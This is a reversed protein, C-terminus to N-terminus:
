LFVSRGIAFRALVEYRSGEGGLHSEYLLFENAIFRSIWWAGARALFDRLGATASRARENGQDSTGKAGAERKGAKRALTIHPHFPREEAVFGCEGTAAVVQKQLHALAPTVAVEAFLVGARDFCRLKGIEITVPASRVAGLGAILCELKEPATNGLFQLTIHWSEPKSWRLGRTGAGEGRRLRSVLASMESQAANALPVGVFLRM